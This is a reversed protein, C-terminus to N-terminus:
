SHILLDRINCCRRFDKLHGSFDKALIRCRDYKKRERTSVLSAYIIFSLKISYYRFRQKCWVDCHFLQVETRHITSIESSIILTFFTGTCNWSLIACETLNRLCANLQCFRRFYFWFYYFTDCLRPTLTLWHWSAVKNTTHHNHHLFFVDRPRLSCCQSSFAELDGAALVTSACM